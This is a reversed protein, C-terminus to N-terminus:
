PCLSRSSFVSVCMDFEMKISLRWIPYSSSKIFLFYVAATAIRVILITRWRFNTARRGIHICLSDSTQQQNVNRCLERHIPMHIPLLQWWVCASLSANFYNIIGSCICGVPRHPPINCYQHLDSENNPLRRASPIFSHFIIVIKWPVNLTQSPATQMPKSLKGLVWCLELKEDDALYIKSIGISCATTCCITFPFSIIFPLIPVVDDNKSNTNSIYYLIRVCRLSTVAPLLFIHMFRIFEKNYEVIVVFPFAATPWLLSLFTSKMIIIHLLLLPMTVVAAVYVCRPLLISIM